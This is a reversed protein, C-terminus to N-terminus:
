VVYLLCFTEDCASAQPNYFVVCFIYNYINWDLYSGKNYWSMLATSFSM